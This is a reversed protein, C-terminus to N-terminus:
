PSRVAREALAADALARLAADLDPEGELPCVENDAFIVELRPYTTLDLKELVRSAHTGDDLNAATVAV